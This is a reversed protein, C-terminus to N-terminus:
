EAILGKNRERRMRCEENRMEGVDRMGCEANRVDEVKLVHGFRGRQIPFGFGGEIFEVVQDGREILSGDVGVDDVLEESRVFLSTKM